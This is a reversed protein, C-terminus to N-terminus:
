FLTLFDFRHPLYSAPEAAVRDGGCLIRMGGGESGAAELFGHLSLGKVVFTIHRPRTRVMVQGTLFTQGSRAQECQSDEPSPAM